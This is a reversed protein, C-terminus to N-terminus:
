LLEAGFEVAEVPNDAIWKGAKVVMGAASGNSLPIDGLYTTNWTDQPQTTAAPTQTTLTPQSTPVNQAVPTMVPKSAM